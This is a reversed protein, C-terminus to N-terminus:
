GEECNKERPAWFCASSAVYVEHSESVWSKNQFLFPFVIALFLLTVIKGRRWKHVVMGDLSLYHM